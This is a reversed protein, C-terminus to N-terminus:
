GVMIFRVRIIEHYSLIGGIIAAIIGMGFLVGITTM